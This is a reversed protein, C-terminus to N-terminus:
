HRKVFLTRQRELKMAIVRFTITLDRAEDAIQDLYGFVDKLWIRNESMGITQVAYLNFSERLRDVVKERESIMVCIQEVKSRDSSLVKLCEEFGIAIQNVEASATGLLELVEIDEVKMYQFLLAAREMLDSIQDLRQAIILVYDPNINLFDVSMINTAANEFINDASEEIESIEIILQKVRSENKTELAKCTLILKSSMETISKALPSLSEIM